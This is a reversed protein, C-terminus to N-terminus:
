AKVHVPAKYHAECFPAGSIPKAECERCAMNPIEMWGEAIDSYGIRYGIWSEFGPRGMLIHRDFPATEIPQWPAKM